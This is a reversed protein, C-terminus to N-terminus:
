IARDFWAVPEDDTTTALLPSSNRNKLTDRKKKKHTEIQRIKTDVAYVCHPSIGHPWWLQVPPVLFFFFLFDSSKHMHTCLHRWAAVFVVIRCRRPSRICMLGVLGSKILWLIRECTFFLSWSGISYSIIIRGRSGRGAILSREGKEGWCYRLTCSSCMGQWVISLKRWIWTM